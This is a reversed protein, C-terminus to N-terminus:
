YKTIQMIAYCLLSNFSYGKKSQKHLNTVNFKGTVCVTPEPEKIFRSYMPEGQFKSIDIKVKTESM